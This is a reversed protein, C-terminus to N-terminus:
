FDIQIPDNLSTVTDELYKKFGEENKIGGPEDEWAAGFYYMVQGAIPRFVVIESVGDETLKAGDEKRYFIAIGLNDGSLSQKGYLALYRWKGDSSEPSKILDCGVHKALGTCLQVSDSNVSACVKTLRSGASISLDAFLDYLKGAVKWGFYKTSVGSRIPGNLIKCEVREVNSVTAVETDHYMAISGIGLSEGVKFIDMGWDLMNTYSEKSDSVLDNAGIQELVLQHTRKGFIDNRNRSDLYFRYVIRDSEWGPGEIRYLADHAFHDSPVSTSDVDVFRGGTYYGNVKRYDTKVGLAARTMPPYTHEEVTDTTWRIIFEKKELPAFSSVFIMMSSNGSTSNECSGRAGLLQSAIENKDYTVFFAKENFSPFKSKIKELDLAIVEYARSVNTPNMATVLFSDQASPVSHSVQGPSTVYLFPLVVLAILAIHKM